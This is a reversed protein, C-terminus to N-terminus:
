MEVDQMGEDEEGSIRYEPLESSEWEAYVENPDKGREDSELWQEVADEEPGHEQGAPHAHKNGIIPEEAAPRKRGIMASAPVILTDAYGESQLIPSVINKM